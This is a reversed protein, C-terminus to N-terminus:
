FILSPALREFTSLLSTPLAPSRASPAPSAPAPAPVGGTRVSQVVSAFPLLLKNLRLFGIFLEEEVIDARQMRSIQLVVTNIIAQRNLGSGTYNNAGDFVRLVKTTQQGFNRQLRCFRTIVSARGTTKSLFEAPTVLVNVSPLTKNFAPAKNLLFETENISVSGTTIQISVGPGFFVHPQARPPTFKAPTCFKARVLDSALNAAAFINQVRIQPLSQLPAQTNTRTHPTYLHIYQHTRIHTNTHVHTYTDSHTHVLM